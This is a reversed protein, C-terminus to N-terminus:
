ARPPRIDAPVSRGASLRAPAAEPTSRLRLTESGAPAHLVVMSCGHCDHDASPQPQAPDHVQGFAKADLEAVSTGTSSAVERSQMKAAGDADQMHHSALAGAIPGAILCVMLVISLARRFAPAKISELAKALARLM